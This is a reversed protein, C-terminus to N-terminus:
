LETESNLYARERRAEHILLEIESDEIDPWWARMLWHARGWSRRREAADGLLM